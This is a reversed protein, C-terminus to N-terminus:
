SDRARPVGVTIREVDDVNASGLGLQEGYRLLRVDEPLPRFGWTIRGRDIRQRFLADIMVPNDSLWVVPESVTYLSNFAPGGIFQYRELSVITCTQRARLEPIAAMEAAAASANAPSRFFRYTNSANWLTANVLAGNVDLVPHDSCIPLNIWFDVDFMLPVPLLSKRDDGGAADEDVVAGAMALLVASRSPLPSEYFWDAEYFQGSELVEVDVGDFQDGRASLPPLFGSDRLRGENLGLVFLDQRSFGRRELAKIVARLLNLPTRLGPGSDSYVKLGARGTAGPVLKQGSHAEFAQLMQEVAGEYSAMGYDKLGAEFVRNSPPPLDALSEGEAGRAVSVVAAMAVLMVVHVIGRRFPSFGLFRSDIDNM